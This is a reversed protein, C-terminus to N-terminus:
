AAGSYVRGRLRAADRGPPLGFMRCYERSFQTPSAYGVAHAVGTVTQAGAVLLSRAEQLRLHMRFQLPTMGTVNRFHRHFTSASMGAIQALEPVAAAEALNARLWTIVKGIRVQSSQPLAVQAISDGLPGTLLRWMLEREVLPALVATDGPADQLRLLRVVADLVEASATLTGIANGVAASPQRARLEPLLAAIANLHLRMSVALAPQAPTADIFHGSLPLGATVILCQGALYEIVRGGLHLRKGGQAMLIFLPDSFQYDPESTDSRSILLGGVAVVENPRAIRLARERIEGLMMEAARM